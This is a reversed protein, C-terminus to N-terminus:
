GDRWARRERTLNGRALSEALPSSERFFYGRACVVAELKELFAARGSRFVEDPVFGYEDRVGAVYRDYDEPLSAFVHFDADLFHGIAVAASDGALPDLPRATARVMRLALGVDDADLVGDLVLPGTEREMWRASEEENDSRTPEYVADHFWAALVFASPPSHHRVADLVALLHRPGHYTRHPASWASLLRDRVEDLRRLAGMWNEALGGAAAKPTPFRHGLLRQVEAEEPVLLAPLSSRIPARNAIAEAWRRLEPTSADQPLYESGKVWGAPLLRVPRAQLVDWMGYHMWEWTIATLALMPIRIFRRIVAAEVRPVGNAALADLTGEKTAEDFETDLFEEAIWSWVDARDVVPVHNLRGFLELDRRRSASVFGVRGDHLVVEPPWRSLRLEAVQSAAVEGGLYDDGELHTVHVEVM